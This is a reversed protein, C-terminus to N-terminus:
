VGACCTTQLEEASCCVPWASGAALRCLKGRSVSVGPFSSLPDSSSLTPCLTLLTLQTIPQQSWQPLGISCESSNCLWFSSRLLLDCAM